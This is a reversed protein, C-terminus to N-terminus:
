EFVFQYEKDCSWLMDYVLIILGSVAFAADTYRLRVYSLRLLERTACERVFSEYGPSSYSNVTMQVTQTRAVSLLHEAQISSDRRRIVIAPLSSLVISRYTVNIGYTATSITPSTPAHLYRILGRPPVAVEPQSDSFSPDLHVHLSSEEYTKLM